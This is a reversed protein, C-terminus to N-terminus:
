GGVESTSLHLVLLLVWLARPVLTECECAGRKVGLHARDVDALFLLHLDDGVRAVNCLARADDDRAYARDHLSLRELLLGNAAACSASVGEGPWQGLEAAALRRGRGEGRRGRGEGSRAGRSPEVGWYVVLWVRGLVLWM